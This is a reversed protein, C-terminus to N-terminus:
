AECMAKSTEWGQSERRFLDMDWLVAENMLNQASTHWEKSSLRSFAKHFEGLNLLFILIRFKCCWKEKGKGKELNEWM